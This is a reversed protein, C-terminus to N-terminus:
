PAPAIPTGQHFVMQWGQATRRWISRRWAHRASGDSHHRTSRYTVLAISPALAQAAFEGLSLRGEDHQAVTALLDAKGYRRGSSGFEVFDDALLAAMKAPSRRVDPRLLAEELRQLEEADRASLACQGAAETSFKQQLGVSPRLRPFSGSRPVLPPQKGDGAPGQEAGSRGPSGGAQGTGTLGLMKATQLIVPEIATRWGM